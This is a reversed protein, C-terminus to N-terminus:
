LRPELHHPEVRRLGVDNFRVLIKTRGFSSEVEEVTGAGYTPHAVKM